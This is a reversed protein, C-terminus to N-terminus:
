RLEGVAQPRLKEGSGQAAARVCDKDQTGRPFIPVNNINTESLVGEKAISVQQKGEAPRWSILVLASGILPYTLSRYWRKPGSSPIAITIGDPACHRMKNRVFRMQTSAVTFVHEHKASKGASEALVHRPRDLMAAPGPTMTM